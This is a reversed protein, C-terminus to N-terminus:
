QLKRAISSRVPELMGEVYSYTSYLFADNESSFTKDPAQMLPYLKTAKYASLADWCCHISHRGQFPQSPPPVGQGGLLPLTGPPLSYQSGGELSIAHPHREQRGDLLRNSFVWRRHIGPQGYSLDILHSLGRHGSLLRVLRGRASTSATTGGLHSSSLIAPGMSKRFDSLSEGAATFFAPAGGPLASLSITVGHGDRDREHSLSAKREV